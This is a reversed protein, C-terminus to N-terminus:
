RGHIVKGSVASPARVAGVGCCCGRKDPGHNTVTDHDAEWVTLTAVQELLVGGM